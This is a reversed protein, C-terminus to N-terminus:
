EAAGRLTVADATPERVPPRLFLTALFMAATIASCLWFMAEFSGLTDRAWGGFYPGAAAITSLLCMISFLELNAKKGFYLLLAMTPATFSLGYGIGVGVAYVSMMGWGRAVSLAAMGVAVTAMCIIMLTKASVKEGLMGGGVSVAVGILAELSLMFAGDKAPVGREILHEVAFGHATTNILLYTTYVGFIVFFQPTALARRVTWDKLGELMEAPGAREPAETRHASDDHRPPTAFVAFLGSAVAMAVFAWWYARWGHTLGEILVYLLPGAVAGLTGVAFYAGLATSRNDFIETIVHSGPVTSVLSFALGILSAGAFYMGVSHTVAMAAFGAVMVLMGIAMTGRVGIHRILVAPVVSALGCAVGLLTYGLGAQKWSWHMERVMAPLVVGMSSFAGASVV